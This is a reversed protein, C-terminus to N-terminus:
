SLGAQAKSVLVGDQFILVANAGPQGRGRCTLGLTQLGGISSESTVECAREGVLAYLQELTTTNPQIQEYQDLTMQTSVTTAGAAGLACASVRTRDDNWFYPGTEGPTSFAAERDVELDFGDDGDTEISLTLGVPPQGDPLAWTAVYQREGNISPGLRAAVYTWSDGEYTTRLSVVGNLAFVPDDYPALITAALQSVLAEDSVPECEHSALEPDLTATASPTATPSPSPTTTTAARSTKTAAVDTRPEEDGGCAAIM